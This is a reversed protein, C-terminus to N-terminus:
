QEGGNLRRTLRRGLERVLAEDSVHGLEGDGPRLRGRRVAALDGPAPALTTVLEGTPLDCVDLAYRSIDADPGGHRAVLEAVQALTAAEDDLDLWVHEGDVVAVTDGGQWWRKRHWLTYRYAIRGM